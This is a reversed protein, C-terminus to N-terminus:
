GRAALTALLQRSATFDQNAGDLMCLAGFMRLRTHIFRTQLEEDTISDIVIREVASCKAVKQEMCLEEHAASLGQEDLALLHSVRIKPTASAVYMVGSDLMVNRIAESPLGAVDPGFDYSQWAVSLDSEQIRYTESHTALGPM